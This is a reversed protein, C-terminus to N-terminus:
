VGFCTRQRRPTLVNLRPALSGPDRGHGSPRHGGPFIREQGGRGRRRAKEPEKPMLLEPEWEVLEKTRAAKLM